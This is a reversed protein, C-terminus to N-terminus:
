AAIPAEMSRDRLSAAALIDETYVHIGGRLDAITRAVRMTRHVSRATLDLGRAIDTLSDRAARDLSCVRQLHRGRLAANARGGNRALALHWAAAIREAVAASAEPAAAEVLTGPELRPMVVRLDLRDLLPGSVRRM